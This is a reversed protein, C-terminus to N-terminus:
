PKEKRLQQCAHTHGATSPRPSSPGLARGSSKRCTKWDGSPTHLVTCCGALTLPRCASPSKPKPIHTALLHALCLTKPNWQRPLPKLRLVTLGGGGGSFFVNLFNKLCPSFNLGLEWCQEYGSSRLMLGAWFSDLFSLMVKGEWISYLSKFGWDTGTM